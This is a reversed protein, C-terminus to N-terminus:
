NHMARFESGGAQTGDAGIVVDAEVRRGDKLQIIQREETASEISIVEADTVVDAGTDM